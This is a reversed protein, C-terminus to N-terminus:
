FEGDEDELLYNDGKTLKLLSDFGSITVSELSQINSSLGAVVDIIQNLRQIELTPLEYDGNAISIWRDLMAPIFENISMDNKEAWYSLRDYDTNTLRVTLRHSNNDTVKKGAM